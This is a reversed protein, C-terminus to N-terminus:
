LLFIWVLPVSLGSAFNFFFLMAFTSNKKFNLETLQIPNSKDIFLLLCRLIIFIVVPVSMMGYSILLNILMNHMSNGTSEVFGAPGLGIPKQLMSDYFFEFQSLREFFSSEGLMIFSSALDRSTEMKMLFFSLSVTIFGLILTKHKLFINFFTLAVISFVIARSQPMLAGFLILSYPLLLFVKLLFNQATKIYTHISIIGLLIYTGYISYNELLGATRKWFFIIDFIRREPPNKNIHQLDIVNFAHLIAFMSLLTSTIVFDRRLEFIKSNEIKVYTVLILGQILGIAPRIHSISDIRVLNAFILFLFYIILFLSIQHSKQIKPGHILKILLSISIVLLVIDHVGVPILAVRLFPISELTFSYLFLRLLIV